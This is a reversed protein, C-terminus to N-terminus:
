VSDRRLFFAHGVGHELLQHRHHPHCIFRVLHNRSILHLNVLLELFLPILILLSPRSLTREVRATKIGSFLLNRGGGDSASRSRDSHCVKISPDVSYTLILTLSLPLLAREVHAM